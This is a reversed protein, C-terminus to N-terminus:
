KLWNNAQVLQDLKQLGEEIKEQNGDKQGQKLLDFAIVLDLHFDMYKEPVNLNTLENLIGSFEQKEFFPRLIQAVNREYDKELKETDVAKKQENNTKNATLDKGKGNFYFLAILILFVAMVLAVILIYPTKKLRKKM